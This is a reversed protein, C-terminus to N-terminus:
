RVSVGPNSVNEDSPLDDLLCGSCRSWVGNIRVIPVWGTGLLLLLIQRIRETDVFITVIRSRRAFDFPFAYRVFVTFSVVLEGESWHSVVCPSCPSQADNSFMLGFARFFVTTAFFISPVHTADTSFKCFVPPHQVGGKCVLRLKIYSEPAFVNTPVTTACRAFRVRHRGHWCFLQWGLVKFSSDAGERAELPFSRFHVSFSPSRPSKPLWLKQDRTDLSM